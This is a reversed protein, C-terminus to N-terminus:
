VATPWISEAGPLVKATAATLAMLGARRGTGNAGQAKNGTVNVNSLTVQGGDILLGGGLANGGGLVGGDKAVGGTITLNQLVVDGNIEFVRHSGDAAIITDQPTDGIITLSKGPGAQITQESASYTGAALNIINGTDTNGDAATIAAALSMDAPVNFVALCLRAELSEVSPRFSRNRDSRRSSKRASRRTDM